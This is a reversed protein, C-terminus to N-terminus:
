RKRKKQVSNKYNSVKENKQKFVNGGSVIILPAKKSKYLRSAHLIRNGRIQSEVRPAIPVTIDGALVVIAQAILSSEIPTPLYAKDIKGYLWGTIPSSALIVIFM